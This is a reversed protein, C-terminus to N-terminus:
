LPLQMGTEGSGHNPIGWCFRHLEEELRERSRMWMLVLVEKQQCRRYQRIDEYSEKILRDM